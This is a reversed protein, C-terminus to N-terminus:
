QSARPGQVQWFQRRLIVWIRPDPPLNTLRPRQGYSSRACKGMSTYLYLRGLWSTERYRLPQCRPRRRFYQRPCLDGDRHYLSSQKPRRQGHLSSSSACNTRNRNSLCYWQRSPPMTERKCASVGISILQELSLTRVSPAALPRVVALAQRWKESPQCPTARCSSSAAQVFWVLCQSLNIIKFM